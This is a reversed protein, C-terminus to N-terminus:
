RALIFGSPPYCRGLPKLFAPALLRRRLPLRSRAFVRLEACAERVHEIAEEAANPQRVAWLHVEHTERLARLLQWTRIAGGADLPWPLTPSLFLVRM